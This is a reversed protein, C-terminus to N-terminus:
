CPTYGQIREAEAVIYTGMRRIGPVKELFSNISEFDVRSLAKLPPARFPSYFRFKVRFGPLNKEIVGKSVFSENPAVFGAWKKVREYGFLRLATKRAAWYLWNASLSHPEIIFLSKKCVKAIEGIAVDKNPMHHISGVCFVYDFSQPAFSLNEGDGLVREGNENLKLLSKSIDVGVAISNEENVM